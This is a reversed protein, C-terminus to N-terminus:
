VHARGIKRRRRIRRRRRRRREEKYNDREIAEDIMAQWEKDDASATLSPPDIEDRLLEERLAEIEYLHDLETYEDSQNFIKNLM